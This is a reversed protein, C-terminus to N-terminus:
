KVAEITMFFGAKNGGLIVSLFKYFLRVFWYKSNQALDCFALITDVNSDKLTFQSLITKIESVTYAKTGPSEVYNAIAYDLSKFFDGKLLCKRFWVMYASVSNKNYIMLSIKGGPKTVRIIESLCKITDPSHHIVGWSYTCDFEDDNFPLNEADGAIINTSKFGELDCRKKANMVSEQTLDIGTAIAGNRLWQIFDTGAGVGIELVKKNKYNEFGAFDPIYPQLRYRAEEIQDFYEKTHKQESTYIIGCSEANWYDHVQKKLM